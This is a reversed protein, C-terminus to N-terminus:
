FHKRVKLPLGWGSNFSDTGYGRGEWKGMGVEELGTAAAEGQAKMMQIQVETVSERGDEKGGM